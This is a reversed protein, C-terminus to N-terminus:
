RPKKGERRTDKGDIQRMERSVRPGSNRARPTECRLMRTLIAIEFFYRSNPGYSTRTERRKGEKREEVCIYARETEKGRGYRYEGLLDNSLYFCPNKGLLALHFARRPLTLPDM